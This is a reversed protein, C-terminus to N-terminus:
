SHIEDQIEPFYNEVFAKFIQHFDDNKLTSLNRNLTATDKRPIPGTLATKPNKAINKFTQNLIPLLDKEKIEFRATMERFFKQWLITTFNNAMVCIAHYYPKDSPSIRYHPNKLGPLLAEFSPGNEEIIFPLAEYEDLTYNEDAFTQLPHASFALPSILSGSFHIKQVHSYQNLRHELIFDNIAGDSILLLAHTSNELIKSLEASTNHARNWRRYSLGLEDFYHCVHMAMRGRGIVAYQPVQRM